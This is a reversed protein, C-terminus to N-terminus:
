PAAPPPAPTLLLVVTTSDARRRGTVALQGSANSGGVATLEYLAKDAESIRDNLDVMTQGEMIFAHTVEGPLVTSWGAIFGGASILTACAENGDEPNLAGLEIVSGGEYKVAVQKVGPKEACGVAVGGDNIARATSRLGGPLVGLDQPHKEVWMTAHHLGQANKSEGVITGDANVARASGKTGGLTHLISLKDSGLAYSFAEGKATEGVVLGGGVGHAVGPTIIVDNHFRSRGLGYKYAAYWGQQIYVQGVTAIKSAEPRLFIYRSPHRNTGGGYKISLGRCEPPDAKCLASRIRAKHQSSTTALVQGRDNVGMASSKEMAPVIGVDYTAAWAPGVACPMAMAFTLMRAAARVHPVM